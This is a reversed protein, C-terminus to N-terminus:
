SSSSSKKKRTIISNLRRYNQSLLDNKFLKKIINTLQLSFSRKQDTVSSILQNLYKYDVGRIKAEDPNRSGLLKTKHSLFLNKDICFRYLSSGPVPTFFSYACFGPKIRAIAKANKIDDERYWNGDSYPIGFIFNGYIAIGLNKIIETAKWNEAVTTGKNLWKLMRESFSEYGVSVTKLGANKMEKFINEYKVILNARSAALWGIGKEVFGYEHMAKCFDQVWKPNLLFQDDHFVISKFKYQAYLQSLEEMVNKVSRQRIYPVRTGDKETTYLNQEGPGCCFRCQYPCGRGTIMEVMPPTLGIMFAIQIRKKYDPWLERDPFPIADLDPTKGWFSFPFKDPNEVFEPFSIEGEGRLVYDVVKTALIQNPFMTPHIGGVCTKIKQDVKKAYYCCEIGVKFECTHMTVGLFEPAQKKVSQIYENWGTLLRTDILNVEHGAAKLCASLYALSFRMSIASPNNFPAAWSTTAM